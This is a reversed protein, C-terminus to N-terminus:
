KANQHGAFRSRLRVGVTYLPRSIVIGIILIISNYSIVLLFGYTFFQGGEISAARIGHLIGMFLNYCMYLATGWRMIFTSGLHFFGASSTVIAISILMSFYIFITSLFSATPLSHRLIISIRQFLPFLFADFTMIIVASLGISFITRFIKIQM